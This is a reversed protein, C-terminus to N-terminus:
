FKVDIGFTYATLPPYGYLNFTGSYDTRERNSESIEPTGRFKTILLLNTGQAYVRLSKARIYKAIKANLTYGLTVDRLSVYDGKELYKDTNYTTNQTIDLPNAYRVIDGPKKWYDFASVFQNDTVSEGDSTANQDMINFIYNGGSYYARASFDIGKYSLDTGITGYFKVVSSKGKLLQAQGSSYTETITGDINYYQNKGNAPNIGAWKVAYFTNIPQGVVLRAYGASAAFPVDDSVLSTIKNDNNTYAVSVSWNLDKNRIVEGKLFVELGKNMVSGINGLYSTFGTTTSVNVNYLLDNTKKNYYGLEGTIRDDLFGFQLSADYTDTTEWTLDPNDLRAPAIAPQDNYRVNLAYAGLADYNGINNNGATGFSSSLKLASLWDAKIFKENKIDWGIGLAYFNAYRNNQGFRSSGDRRLSANLFYRKDFDYTANGFYSILAFDYRSTSATTPTSANEVTTVDKTPLNRGVLNYSYFETKNFEQGVLANVSHKSAFTQNWVATNTFVYVFDQEGRDQKQSYGLITALNSGPQLYTERRLTNYNIGLQSKLTLHNFFNAEGYFTGFSSVRRYTDPNNTAGELSSFGQATTNFKGDSTYVPEYPNYYFTSAYLNQTNNTERVLREFTYTSGLNTGLKFWDKAQYEVNLRGGKRNFNSLVETGQNDNTNLSFYYKVKEAGGSLSLEHTKAVAKQLLVDRWNGAGRSAALDWLGQRQAATLNFLDAGAPFAGSTIRNTIMSDILPNQYELEYEYQLKQQSNMLKVNQLEQAESVGRQFSYRLTPQGAKGQKTTILIVGNAARSGYIASSAADKLVTVQEIDNPNIANYATASVQIGDVIILPEASANISGVGRVRIVANAGPRGSAGTVQLGAAAGQLNQTFSQIPKDAIEKSNITSVSGIVSKKAVSQYGVVVVGELETASSVLVVSVNNGANIAVTQTAYGLYTFQLSKNADPVRLSFKGDAGTQTGIQTGSVKVSVGPLPLGDDKATVTGTVTREQALAQVAVFLMLLLSQLLRKM